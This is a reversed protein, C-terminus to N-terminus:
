RARRGLIGFESRADIVNGEVLGEKRMEGFRRMERFQRALRLTHLKNGLARQWVTRRDDNVIVGKGEGKERLVGRSWCACMEDRYARELIQDKEESTVWKFHRMRALLDILECEGDHKDM